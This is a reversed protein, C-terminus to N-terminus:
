SRPESQTREISAPGAAVTAGPLRRSPRDKRRRGRAARSRGGSGAGSRGSAGRGRAEELGPGVLGPRSGDGAPDGPEGEVVADGFCSM